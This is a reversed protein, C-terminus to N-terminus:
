TAFNTFITASNVLITELDWWIWQFEDSINWLQNFINWFWGIKMTFWCDHELIEDFDDLIFSISGIEDCNRRLDVVFNWFRLLEDFNTWKAYWFGEFIGLFYHVVNWLKWIVFRNRMARGNVFLDRQTLELMMTPFNSNWWLLLSFFSFFFFFSSLPNGFVLSLSAMNTRRLSFGRFSPFFGEIEAAYNVM